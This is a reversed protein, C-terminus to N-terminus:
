VRAVRGVRREENVAGEFPRQPVPGLDHFVPLPLVCFESFCRFHDLIATLPFQNFELFPTSDPHTRRAPLECLRGRLSTWRRLHVRRRALLLRSGILVAYYFFWLLVSYPTLLEFFPTLNGSSHASNGDFLLTPREAPNVPNNRNPGIPKFM